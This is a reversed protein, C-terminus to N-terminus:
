VYNAVMTRIGPWTYERRILKLTKSHGFHGSTPHDHRARLVRLRLDGSDPIYVRGDLRTIGDDDKSWRPTGVKSQLEDDTTVAARIDNLLQETDIIFAARLM